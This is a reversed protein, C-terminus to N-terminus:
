ILFRKRINDDPYLCKTKKGFWKYRNKAIFTYVSDRLPKPVIILLYFIKVISQLRKAVKLAATSKTYYGNDDILIFSDHDNEPLGYKKLFQHGIKSQLPAFVFVENPDRSIIFQVTRSCFQCTGDFLIIKKRSNM